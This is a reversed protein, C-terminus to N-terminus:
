ADLPRDAARQQRLRQRVIARIGLRLAPTPVLGREALDIASQIANM